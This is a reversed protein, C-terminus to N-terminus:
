TLDAVIGSAKENKAVLTVEMVLERKEADGTKAREENKLKRLWAVSWMDPQLILADRARQVRNPVVRLDGFDSVYVDVATTLRKGGTAETRQVNGTFGSITQKNKGGVMIISPNGGSEWCSQLVGKLLSETLARTTGDTRADTGDGTPDVGGTGKSTNTSIWSLASAMKRATPTGGGASRATNSLMAFELDLKIEKTKKAIERAMERPRGARKTAELTGSVIANKKLIQTYNGLRVTPVIPDYTTEDGEIHANDGPAALEDTQWEHFTNTANGGKGCMTLFPTETPSVDYIFDSLDERIGVADYTTYTGAIQAM